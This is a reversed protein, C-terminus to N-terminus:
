FKLKVKLKSSLDSKTGKFQAHKMCSLIIADNVNCVIKLLNKDMSLDYFARSQSFIPSPPTNFM